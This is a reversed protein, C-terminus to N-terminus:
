TLIIVADIAGWGIVYATLDDTDVENYKVFDINPSTLNIDRTM